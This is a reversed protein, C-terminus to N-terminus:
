LYMLTLSKVRIHLYGPLRASETVVWFKVSLGPGLVGLTQFPWENSYINPHCFPFLSNVIEMLFVAAEKRLKRFNKM